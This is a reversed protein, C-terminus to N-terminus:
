CPVEGVVMALCDDYQSGFEARVRDAWPGAHEALWANITTATQQNGDEDIRISM